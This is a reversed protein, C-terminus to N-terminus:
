WGVSGGHHRLMGYVDLRREEGLAHVSIVEPQFAVRDKGTIAPRPLFLVVFSCREPTILARARLM